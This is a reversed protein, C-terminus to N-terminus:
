LTLTCVSWRPTLTAGGGGEIPTRQHISADSVSIRIEGQIKMIAGRTVGALHM